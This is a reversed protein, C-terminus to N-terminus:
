IKGRGLGRFILGTKEIDQTNIIGRTDILIPTRMKSSFYEAKISKFEEHATVIISADVDSIVDELSNETVYKFLLTLSLIILLLKSDIINSLDLKM